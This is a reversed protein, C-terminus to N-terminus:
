EGLVERLRDFSKGFSEWDGERLAETMRRYERRAEELKEPTPPPAERVEAPAEPGPAERRTLQKGFAAAVAEELSPAMVVNKGYVAIVRKLQPIDTGEAILYVPEVYLFSHDIPIVLLNGRIVRSGRQDWLSLQQSIVDDQDIMAEIQIPGYILRDKPLTYVIAKGYGPYDSKGALWAIMNDKNGPTVPTMILFQLSEEDPLRILIYYPEMRVPSGAYKEQPIGWLDERNYFVQPITMHYSRFMDVQVSFLGEPYRLHAKLDGSMEELPRFMGPFAEGYARLVPDEPDSVYFDVTGDYADVVVKASNRIYNLKRQFPEAYPFNSTVTYADQIWYLGGESLVLYPDRDLRLFPAISSVREQVRRRMQIRSGPTIYESLLINIDSFEWAFLAQRLFGSLPIGGLGQYSTYVNEDGKPYDFEDIGSSVIRYGPMREGYYIAPRDVELGPSTAPPLDKILYNPLGEEVKESVPSMALGFGHTFQLHENVWTRAGEPLTEALERASLMVQRYQGGALTYRDIDVEYFKYYPRIEQTQRYTQRIPRWDWLRINELTDRNELVDEFSLDALGPYDRQEIGDLMYARRTFDINYEIYPKELQLENPEVKFSQVLSPLFALAVLGAAVYAGAGYLVPRLRRTLFGAVVVVGLALTAFFMLWLGVLVYNIDTYGAGYAVGRTSFLLEFRDLYYGWGWALALPVLMATLHKVVRSDLPRLGGEFKRFFGFAFYAALSAAFAALSAAVLSNQLLNLFPLKFVYYGVDRSFLPDALGFGGGWRFLIFTNWNILFSSAAILAPVLSLAPPVFSLWPGSLEVHQGRATYFEVKRRGGTKPAVRALVVWLNAWFYAFVLAFSAAALGAKISFLRWFVQSYGVHGMWLWDVILGTTKSLALLAAFAVLLIVAPLYGRKGSRGKIKSIKQEFDM